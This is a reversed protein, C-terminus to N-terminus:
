REWLGHQNGGQAYIAFKGIGPIELPPHIVEGGASVVAAVAASIDGVLWYPRVVAEESPHM